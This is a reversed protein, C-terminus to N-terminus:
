AAGRSKQKKNLSAVYDEYKRIQSVRYDFGPIMSYVPRGMSLRLAIDSRLEKNEIEAADM